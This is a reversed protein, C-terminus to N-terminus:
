LSASKTQNRSVLHRFTAGVASASDRSRISLSQMREIFRTSRTSTIQTLPLGTDIWRQAFIRTKWRLGRECKGFVRMAAAAAAGLHGLGIIVALITAASAPMGHGSQT